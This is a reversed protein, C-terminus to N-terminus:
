KEEKMAKTLCRIQQIKSEPRGKGESKDAPKAQVKSPKISSKIIIM